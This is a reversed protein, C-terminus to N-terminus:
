NKETSYSEKRCQFEEKDKLTEILSNIFITAALLDACGGSSYNKETFYSDLSQLKKEAGPAYAGGNKLFTRATTQVEKLGELGTRALINGDEVSSMLTMLVQIKVLNWDQGSNIGERLVPLGYNRISPYGKAAEGRIGKSGYQFLNREGSSKPASSKLQELESLLITRVMRQETELLADSTVCCLKRCCVGAAASFIGLTFIAGKHTNVGDTAQYMAQEAELGVPRIVPFLNEPEEYMSIGQLAMKVFYPTIAKTSERFTHLNMDKHAGTSYPDVLGPKPATFVEELLAKAALQGILIESKNVSNM